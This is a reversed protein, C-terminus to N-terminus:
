PPGENELAALSEKAADVEAAQEASAGFWNGSAAKEAADVRAKAAELKDNYEKLAASAKAERAKAENVNAESAKADIAKAGTAKSENVKAESSKAEAAIGSTAGTKSELEKEWKILATVGEIMENVLQVEDKGM